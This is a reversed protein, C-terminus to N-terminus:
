INKNSALIREINHILLPNISVYGKKPRILIKQGVLHDITKIADRFNVEGLANSFEKLSCQYYSYIFSLLSYNREILEKFEQSKINPNYDENNFRCYELMAYGINGRAKKVVNSLVTDKKADNLKEVENVKARLSLAERIQSSNMKGVRLQSSFVTNLTRFVLIRGRLVPSCSVLFFIKKRHKTIANLLWNINDYLDIEENHWLELDDICLIIKRGQTQKIIADLLVKFDIHPEYPRHQIFYSESTKLQIIEENLGLHNMMGLLTSKGSGYDGSLLISGSFGEKWLDYDGMVKNMLDPRPITFSKGLYGKKMFLALADDEDYITLKNKVFQSYPTKEIEFYKSIIGYVYNKFKTSYTVFNESFRKQADRTINTIQSSGDDPLFLTDESYINSAKLYEVQHTQVLKSTELEETRLDELVEKELQSFIEEFEKEQDSSFDVEEFSVAAIKTRLQSFAQLCSEIANDRKSELEITEPLITSSFWRAFEAKVNFSKYNLNGSSASVPISVNEKDAYSLVEMADTDLIDELAQSKDSIFDVVKEIKANTSDATISKVSEKLEDVISQVKNVASSQRGYQLQLDKVFENINSRIDDIKANSRFIKKSQKQIEILQLVIENIPSEQHEWHDVKAGSSESSHFASEVDQAADQITKQVEILYANNDEVKGDIKLQNYKTSALLSNRLLLAFDRVLISWTFALNKNGPLEIMEEIEVLKVKISDISDDIKQSLRLPKMDNIPINKWYTLEDLIDVKKLNTDTDM